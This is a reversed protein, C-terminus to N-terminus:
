RIDILDRELVKIRSNKRLGPILIDAVGDKRNHIRLVRVPLQNPELNLDRVHEDESPVLVETMPVRFERDNDKFRVSYFPSGPHYELTLVYYM